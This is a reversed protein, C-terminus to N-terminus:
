GSLVTTLQFTPRRDLDERGPRVFEFSATTVVVWDDLAEDQGLVPEGV